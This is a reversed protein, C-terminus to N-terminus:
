PAVYLSVPLLPAFFEDLHEVTAANAASRSFVKLEIVDVRGRLEESDTRAQGPRPIDQDAFGELALQEAGRAVPLLASLVTGFRSVAVVTVPVVPTAACDTSSGIGVLTGPQSFSLDRPVAPFRTDVFRGGVELEQGPCLERAQVRVLFRGTLLLDTGRPATQQQLDGDARKIQM